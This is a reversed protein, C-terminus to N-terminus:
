LCRGQAMMKETELRRPNLQSAGQCKRVRRGGGQTWDLREWRKGGEGEYMVLTDDDVKNM